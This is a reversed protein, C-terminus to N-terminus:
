NIAGAEALMQEVVRRPFGIVNTLDGELKEVLSAGEGQIGYGGAKDYPEGTGIYREIQASTLENFWVGSKEIRVQDYRTDMCIVAVATIVEHKKGSLTGLMRIAEERSAPKGFRSQGLVVITDAGVVVANRRKEAISQAKLRAIRRVYTEHTEGAESEESVHSPVVEFDVGM